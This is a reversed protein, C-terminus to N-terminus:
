VFEGLNFGDFQKTFEYIVMEYFHNSIPGVDVLVQRQEMMPPIVCEQNMISMLYTLQHPILPPSQHTISHLALEKIPSFM